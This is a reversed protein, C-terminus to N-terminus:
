RFNESFYFCDGVCFYDKMLNYAKNSHLNNTALPTESHSYCNSWKNGLFYNWVKKESLIFSNISKLPFELKTSHFFVVSYFAFFVLMMIKTYCCLWQLGVLGLHPKPLTLIYASRIGVTTPYCWSILLLMFYTTFCMLVYRRAVFPDPVPNLSGFICSDKRFILFTIPHYINTSWWICSWRKESIYQSVSM